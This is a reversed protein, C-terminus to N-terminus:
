RKVWEAVSIQRLSRSSVTLILLMAELIRWLTGTTTTAATMLGM